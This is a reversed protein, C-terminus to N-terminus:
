HLLVEPLMGSDAVVAHYVRVEGRETNFLSMPIPLAAEAKSLLKFGHKQLLAIIDREETRTQERLANVRAVTARIGAVGDAAADLREQQSMAALREKTMVPGDGSAPDGDQASAQASLIFTAALAFVMMTLRISRM